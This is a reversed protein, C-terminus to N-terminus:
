SPLEVRVRLGRGGAWAVGRWPWFQRTLLGVRLQALDFRLSDGSPQIRDWEWVVTDPRMGPTRRISSLQSRQM